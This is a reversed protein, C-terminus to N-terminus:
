VKLPDSKSKLQKFIRGINDPLTPVEKGNNSEYDNIMKILNVDAYHQAFEKLDKLFEEIRMHNSIREHKLILAFLYSETFVPMPFPEIDVYEKYNLNTRLRQAFQMKCYDRLISSFPKNDINEVHKKYNEMLSYFHVFFPDLDKESMCELNISIYHLMDESGIYQEVFLLRQKENLAFSYSEGLNDRTFDIYDEMSIAKRGAPRKIICYEDPIEELVNSYSFARRKDQSEFDYEIFIERRTPSVSFLHLYESILEGDDIKSYIKMIEVHIRRKNWWDVLTFTVMNSLMFKVLEHFKLKNEDNFYAIYLVDIINQAYLSANIKQKDSFVGYGYQSILGSFFSFADKYICYDHIYNYIGDLEEQTMNQSFSRLDELRTNRWLVIDSIPLDRNLLVSPTLECVDDITRCGILGGASVSHNKEYLETSYAIVHGINDFYSFPKGNNGTNPQSWSPYISNIVGDRHLVVVRLTKLVENVNLYGVLEGNSSESLNINNFLEDIFTMINSPNISKPFLTKWLYGSKYFNEPFKTMKAAKSTMMAAPIKLLLVENQLERAYFWDDHVVTNYNYLHTVNPYEAKLKEWGRVTHLGGALVKKGVRGEPTDIPKTVIDGYIIHELSSEKLVFERGDSIIYKKLIM